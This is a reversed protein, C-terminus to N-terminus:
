KAWEAAYVVKAPLFDPMEAIGVRAGTACNMLQNGYVTGRVPPLGVISFADMYKPSAVVDGRKLAKLEDFTNIIRETM